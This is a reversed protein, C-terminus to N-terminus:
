SPRAEKDWATEVIKPIEYISFTKGLNIIHWYDLGQNYFTKFPGFVCIDLPQLKNSTHPPLTLIVVDSEKATDLVELSLHSEQNDMILLTSEQRKPM